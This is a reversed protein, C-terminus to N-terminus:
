PWPRLGKMWYNSLLLCKLCLTYLDRIYNVVSMCVDIWPFNVYCTCSYGKIGVYVNMCDYIFIFECVLHVPLYICM